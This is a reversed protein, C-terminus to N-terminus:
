FDLLHIGPSSKLTHTHTQATNHLSLVQVMLCLEISTLKFSYKHMTLSTDHLMYISYMYMYRLLVKDVEDPLLNNGSSAILIM